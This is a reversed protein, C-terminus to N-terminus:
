ENDAEVFRAGNDYMGGVSMGSYKVIFEERESKIPRFGELSDFSTLGDNDALEFVHCNHETTGVYFLKDGDPSECWGGIEPVLEDETPLEILDTRETKIKLQSFDSRTGHIIRSIVIKHKDYFTEYSSLTEPGYYVAGEPVDHGKYKKVYNKM